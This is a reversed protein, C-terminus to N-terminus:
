SVVEQPTQELLKSVQELHKTAIEFEFEEANERLLLPELNSFLEFLDSLTKDSKKIKVKSQELPDIELYPSQVSVKFRDQILSDYKKKIGELRKNAKERPELFLKFAQDRTELDTVGLVWGTKM